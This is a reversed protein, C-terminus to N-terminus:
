ARRDPAAPADKPAPGQLALALRGQRPDLLEQELLFRLFTNRAAREKRVTFPSRERALQRQNDTERSRLASHLRLM